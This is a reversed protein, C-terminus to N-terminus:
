TSAGRGEGDPGEELWAAMCVSGQTFPVASGMETELGWMGSSLESPGDTGGLSSLVRRVTSM